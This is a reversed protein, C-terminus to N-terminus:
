PPGPPYWPLEPFFYMPRLPYNFLGLITEKQCNRGAYRCKEEQVGCYQAFVFGNKYLFQVNIKKANQIVFNPLNESQHKWYFKPNARGIVEWIPAKLLVHIVINICFLFICLM